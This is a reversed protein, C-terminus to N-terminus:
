VPLRRAKRKCKKLRKKSWHNKHAKKKCKKLAAARQGTPGPPPPTVFVKFVLDYVGSLSDWDSATGTDSFWATTGACADAVRYGVSLNSPGTIVVAYAQGAVVSAPSIFSASLVSDGTPVSADPVTASALVTDTPSGAGDVSRVQVVYDNDAGSKDIEIEARTLTGTVGSTFSQGLFAWGGTTADPPPDCSAALQEQATAASAGAALLVAVAVVSLLGIKRLM